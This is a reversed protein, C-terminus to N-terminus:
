TVEAGNIDDTFRAEQLDVVPVAAGATKVEDEDSGSTVVDPRFKICFIKSDNTVTYLLTSSDRYFFLEHLFCVSRNKYSIELFKLRLNKLKLSIEAEFIEKLKSRM